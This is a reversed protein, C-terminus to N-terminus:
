RAAKLDAASKKTLFTKVRAMEKRALGLMSTSALQGTKWQMRLQFTHDELERVKQQLEKVSLECIEKRSKSRRNAM